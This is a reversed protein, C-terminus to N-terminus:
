PTPPTPPRLLRRLVPDLRAYADRVDQAKVLVDASHSVVNFWAITGPTGATGSFIASIPQRLARESGYADLVVKFSAKLEGTAPTATSEFHYKITTELVSRLLMAAAVPLSRLSVRRLEQYRRQLGASTYTTYDLGGLQLTDRTDPHNPGRSGGTDGSGGSADDDSGGDGAEDDGDIATDDDTVSTDDDPGPTDGVPVPPDGEPVPTDGDTVPTDDGAVPTDDDTTPSDGDPSDTSEPPPPTRALLVAVLRAHETTHKKLEPSRTNLRNARFEAMLHEVARRQTSPLDAGIRDPKKRRPLLQGDDGFDAGIAAAIDGHRYAYEFASMTLRPAEGAVYDRLSEDSFRVGALFRRMVAMKMFRVVTVDPYRAKIDDVNTQPGLTVM